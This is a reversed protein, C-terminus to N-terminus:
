PDTRPAAFLPALDPPAFPLMMRRWAGPRRATWARAGDAGDTLLTVADLKSRVLATWAPGTWDREIADVDLTTALVVVIVAANGSDALIAGFAAPVARAPRDVHSALAIAIGSDAFTRVVRAMASHSPITGGDSFWISNAPAKGDRERATNVPHEHLLMQIENQWRRWTGGDPGTPLLDRLMRGTAAALPRTRLRVIEPARVFWADPRVAVFEIGDTTFHSNLMRILTAADYPDLDRVGRAPPVDDRRAVRTGPDADLWYATGPDVGLAALRIPALPCDIAAAREIGYYRALMADLGDPDHVPAGGIKILRALNPPRVDRHALQAGLGPLTLVLHMSHWLADLVSAHSLAR